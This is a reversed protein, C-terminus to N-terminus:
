SRPLVAHLPSTPNPRARSMSKGRWGARTRSAAVALRAGSRRGRAKKRLRLHRRERREQSTFGAEVTLSLRAPAAGRPAAARLQAAGPAQSQWHAVRLTGMSAQMAVVSPSVCFPSAV